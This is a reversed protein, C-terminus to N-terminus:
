HYIELFKNIEEILRRAKDTCTIRNGIIDVYRLLVLTDFESKDGDYYLSGADMIRLIRKLEKIDM